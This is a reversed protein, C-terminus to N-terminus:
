QYTGLTAVSVMFAWATFCCFLNWVVIIIMTRNNPEPHKSLSVNLISRDSGNRHLLIPDDNNKMDDDDCEPDSGYSIPNDSHNM